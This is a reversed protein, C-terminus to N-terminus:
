PMYFVGLFNPQEPLIKLIEKVLLTESEERLHALKRKFIQAHRCIRLDVKVDCSPSINLRYPEALETRPQCEHDGHKPYAM